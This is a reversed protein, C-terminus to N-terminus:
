YQITNVLEQWKTTKMIDKSIRMQKGVTKTLNISEKIRLITNIEGKSHLIVKSVKQLVAKITMFEKLKHKDHFAKIKKL